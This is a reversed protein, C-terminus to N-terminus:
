RKNNISGGEITHLVVIGAIDDRKLIAKIEEMAKKLKPSYQM